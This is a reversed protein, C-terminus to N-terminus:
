TSQLYRATKTQSTDQLESLLGHFIIQGGKTGAGPGFEILYDVNNLLFINHEIIMIGKAKALMEDLFKILLLTDHRELGNAPEDIILLKNKLNSKLQALLKLRQAEGGSLESTPRFLTLHGLGISIMHNLKTTITSSKAFINKKFLTSITMTLIDYISHEDITTALVEENYRKGDCRECITKFHHGYSAEQQIYGKGDCAPCQSSKNNFLFTRTRTKVKKCLFDDIPSMLKLYTAVTSNNNGHITGQSIYEVNKNAAISEAFTSKGSGSVGCCGVLCGTPVETTINPLNHIAKISFSLSGTPLKKGRECVIAKQEELWDKSNTLQGDELAIVEDAQEIFNLDHEVMVLTSKKERLAHLQNLINSYESAHLSSSVEDFVYLLNRFESSLVSSFQLRQFEGGSLSPISRSPSLYGLNNNIVNRIIEKLKTICFDKEIFSDLFLALKDFNASLIDHISWGHLEYTALQKAFKAGHCEPCEEELIYSKIQQRVGPLQMNECGNLIEQYAGVYSYKKQRYRNKQKYKVPYQKETESYLILAKEHESLQSISRAMNINHDHCFAELLPYYHNSAFRKWSIVPESNLPKTLDVIKSIDPRQITGVGECYPCYNAPNNQALINHTISPYEKLFLPLFLKDLGLYTFVSSRPNVNLNKQKLAIAPLLNKYSSVQPHLSAPSGSIIDLENKCLSYLTHFALSTKGAGSGGVIATTKGQPFAVEISKLNNTTIGFLQIM